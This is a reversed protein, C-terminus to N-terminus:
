GLSSEQPHLGGAPVNLADRPEVKVWCPLHAFVDERIVPTLHKWIHTGNLCPRCIDWTLGQLIIEMLRSLTSPANCLGFLLIESDYLRRSSTWFAIKAKDEEKVLIQWYSTKLDLSYFWRAGHLSELTNDFCHSPYADKFIINNM